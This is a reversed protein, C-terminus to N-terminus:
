FVRRFGEDYIFLFLLIGLAILVLSENFNIFASFLLAMIVGLLFLTFRKVPPVESEPLIIVIKDHQNEKTIENNM